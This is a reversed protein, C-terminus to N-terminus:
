RLPMSLTFSGPLAEIADWLRDDAMRDLAIGYLRKDLKQEKVVEALDRKAEVVFVQHYGKAGGHDGQDRLYKVIAKDEAIVKEIYTIHNRRNDIRSQLQSLMEQNM